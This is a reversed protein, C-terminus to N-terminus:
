IAMRGGAGAALLPGGGCFGALWALWVRVTAGRERAYLRADLVREGIAVM